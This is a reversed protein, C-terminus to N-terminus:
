RHKYMITPNSRIPNLNLFIMGEEKISKVSAYLILELFFFSFLINSRNEPFIAVINLWLNNFM